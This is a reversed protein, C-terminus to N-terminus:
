SGYAEDLAAEIESKTAVVFHVPRGLATRITDLGVGDVPDAVAVLVARENFAYAVAERERALPQPLLAAADRDVDYKGLEVYLLDEQEAVRQALIREDILGREILVEGLRRGSQRGEELADKLELVGFYGEEVLMSGLPLDRASRAETATLLEKWPSM